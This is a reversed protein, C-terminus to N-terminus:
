HKRRRVLGAGALCLLSLCGPEPVFDVIDGGNLITTQLYDVLGLAIPQGSGLGFQISSVKAGVGFLLPGWTADQAWADLSQAFPNAPPAPHFTNGAQRFLTWDGTDEDLNVTTWTNNVVTPVHVLVLDWASEGSRVANFGNQSQGPGTGYATSQIGLKFALTSGAGVHQKYMEYTASFGPTILDSAPAFGTSTNIVSYNSKGSGTATGDMSVAGFYTSGTPTAVFQIQQAIAIDDAGTPTQGPKPANTNNIGVLDVGASTRVDDGNWGQQGFAGVTVTAAQASACALVIAAAAASINKLRM